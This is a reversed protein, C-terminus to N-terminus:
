IDKTGDFFISKYLIEIKCINYLFYILQRQEFESKRETLESPREVGHCLLFNDYAVFVESLESGIIQMVIPYAINSKEIEYEGNQITKVLDEIEATMILQENEIFKEVCLNVADDIRDVKILCSFLNSIIQKYKFPAQKITKGLEGSILDKYISIAEFFQEKKKHRHAMYLKVREIPVYTKIRENVDEDNSFNIAKWFNITASNNFSNQLSQIYKLCYDQSGYLEHDKVNEIQSRLLAMKYDTPTLGGSEEALFCSLQFFFDFSSIQSCIKAAKLFATDTEPGKNLINYICENLQHVFCDKKFQNNKELPKGSRILSKCYLDYFEFTTPYKNIAEMSLKETKEYDGSTYSDCVNIFDRNVADKTIFIKEECISRFKLLTKDKIEPNLLKIINKIKKLNENLCSVIWFDQVIDKFTLYRDIIASNSELGIVSSRNSAYKYMLKNLKYEFYSKINQNKYREFPELYEIIKKNYTTFSMRVEAKTSLHQAIHIVFPNAGSSNIDSLYSKNKELGYLHEKLLFNNEIGWLSVCIEKDVRELIEKCFQYNSKFFNKEFDSKYELFKNIEPVYDNIEMCVWSLEKFIDGVTDFSLEKKLELYSIPLPNQFFTKNKIIQPFCALTSQIAKTPLNLKLKTNLKKDKFKKAIVQQVIAIRKGSENPSNKRKKAM